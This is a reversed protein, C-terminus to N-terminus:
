SERTESARTRGSSKWPQDPSEAPPHLESQFMCPPLDRAPIGPPNPQSSIQSHLLTIMTESDDLQISAPRNKDKSLPRRKQEDDSAPSRYGRGEWGPSTLISIVFGKHKTTRGATGRRGSARFLPSPTFFARVLCPVMHIPLDQVRISWTLVCFPQTWPGRELAM